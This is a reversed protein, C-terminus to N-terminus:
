KKKFKEYFNSIQDHRVPIADLIGTFSLNTTKKDNLNDGSLFTVLNAEYESGESHNTVIFNCFKAIQIFTSSERDLKKPIKILLLSQSEHDRQARMHRNGVKFEQELWRIANRASESQKKLQDLEGLVANPILVIFQKSKVLAKVIGTYETLAKGDVVIFPTLIVHMPKVKAELTEVENKLWLKGMLRCKEEVNTKQVSNHNQRKKKDDDSSCNTSQSNRDQQIQIKDDNDSTMMLNRNRLYGKRPMVSTIKCNRNEEENQSGKMGNMIGNRQESNRRKENMYMNDGRRRRGQDGVAGGRERM